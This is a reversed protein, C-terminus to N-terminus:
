KNNSAYISEAPVMFYGFQTLKENYIYTRKLLNQLAYICVYVYSNFLMLMLKILFCNLLFVQDEKSKVGDSKNKKLKVLFLFYICHLLIATYFGFLLLLLDM